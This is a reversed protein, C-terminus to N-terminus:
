DGVGPHVQWFWLRLASLPENSSILGDIALSPNHNETFAM